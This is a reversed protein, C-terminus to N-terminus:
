DWLLGLRVAIPLAHWRDRAVYSLSPSEVTVEMRGVILGLALVGAVDAGITQGDLVGVRLAAPSGGVWVRDPV